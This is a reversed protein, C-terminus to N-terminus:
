FLSHPRSDIVTAACSLILSGSFIRKETESGATVKSRISSALWSSLPTPIARHMPSAGLIKTAATSGLITWRQYLALAYQSPSVFRSGIRTNKSVLPRAAHRVIHTAIRGRAIGLEPSESTLSKAHNRSPGHELARGFSARIGLRVRASLGHICGSRVIPAM